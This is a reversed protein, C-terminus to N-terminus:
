DGPRGWGGVPRRVALGFYAQMGLQKAVRLMTGVTSDEAQQTDLGAGVQEFDLRRHLLLM